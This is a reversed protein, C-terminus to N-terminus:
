RDQERQYMRSEVAVANQIVVYRQLLAPSLISM